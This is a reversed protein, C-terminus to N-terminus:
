PITRLYTKELVFIGALLLLAPILLYEYLDRYSTFTKSEFTTKELSDIKAYISELESYNKARYFEGGTLAAIERLTPEDLDEDIYLVPQLPNGTPIQARGKGATGITYIKIDYALATRAALALDTILGTNSRGDTLLIIVKSKAKSDKLHNVGTAIADGIATGEANTMNLGAAEILELVSQYDLTLPCTLLAVGGFVTVGIRDNLRKKVFDGAAMKAADMRNYPTFDVAAMSYSTDLVLMIDIGETPPVEGRSAAQPRALALILLCLALARTWFPLIRFLRSRLGPHAPMPAPVGAARLRRGAQGAALATLIALAPLLLLAWPTKLIIM